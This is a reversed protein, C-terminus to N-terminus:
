YRFASELHNTQLYFKSRKKIREEQFESSNYEANHLITKMVNTSTLWLKFYKREIDPYKSLLNEVRRRNYIDEDRKVYPSLLVKIEKTKLPSLKFSTFVIYRKPKDVLKDLKNKELALQRKL